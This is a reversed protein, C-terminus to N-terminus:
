VEFGGELVFKRILEKIRIRARPTSISEGNEEELYTKAVDYNVTKLLNSFRGFEDITAETLNLGMMERLMEENVSLAISFRRIQDDKASSQYETIYDRLSKGEEVQVDGREVDHM